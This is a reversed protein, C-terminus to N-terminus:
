LVNSQASSLAYVVFAFFSSLPLSLAFVLLSLSRCGLRFSPLLPLFPSLSIM